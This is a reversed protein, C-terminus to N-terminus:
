MTTFRFPSGLKNRLNMPLDTMESFDLVRKAYVWKFIQNARYDKEGFSIIGRRLEDLDLSLIDKM